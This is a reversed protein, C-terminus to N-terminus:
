RTKVVFMKFSTENIPRIKFVSENKGFLIYIYCPAFFILKVGQGEPLSYGVDALGSTM